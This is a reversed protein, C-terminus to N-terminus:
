NDEVNETTFQSARALITMSESIQKVSQVLEELLRVQTQQLELRM